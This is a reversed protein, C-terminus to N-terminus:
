SESNHMPHITTCVCVCASVCVCVCVCVQKNIKHRFSCLAERKLVVNLVVNVKMEFCIVTLLPFRVTYDHISHMLSILGRIFVM